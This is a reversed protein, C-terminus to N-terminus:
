RGMAENIQGVYGMWFSLVQLAVMLAAFLFAAVSLAGILLTRRHRASAELQQEAKELLEALEGATEGSGVMDHVVEPIDRADALAASLPEGGAVRPRAREFAQALYRNPCAEAAAEVATALPIGSAYSLRLVRLTSAIARDRLIGGAIPIALLLRDVVVPSGRRWGILLFASLGIGGYIGVLPGLTRLFYAGFGGKEQFIVPLQPIFLAAHLLFVPYALGMVFARRAQVRDEMHDALTEFTEPLNGSRAGAAILRAEFPSFGPAGDFAKAAEEGAVLRARVPGLLESGAGGQGALRELSQRLGIGAKEMAALRRYVGARAGAGVM